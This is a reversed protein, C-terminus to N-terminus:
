YQLNLFFKKISLLYIFSMPNKDVIRLNPDYNTINREMREFYESRWLSIENQTIKNFDNPYVFKKNFVEHINLNMASLVGLEDTVMLNNHAFLIQEMLTTGSRPFGMLFIPDKKDTYESIWKSTDIDNSAYSIFNDMEETTHKKAEPSISAANQAEIAFEMAQNYKGLKDKIHSLESLIIIKTHDRLGIDISNHYFEEAKEYDKSKPSQQLFYLYNTSTIYCIVHLIMIQWCM